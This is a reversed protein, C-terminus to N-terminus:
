LKGKDIFPVNFKKALRNFLPKLKVFGAETYSSTEFQYNNDRFWEFIFTSLKTAYGKNEYYPDICLYSLWFTNEIHPSKRIHAIGVDLDNEKITFFYVPENKFEKFDHDLQMYRFRKKGMDNRYKFRGSMEGNKHTYVYNYFEDRNYIDLKINSVSENIFFIRNSQEDKQYKWGLENLIRLYLRERQKGKKNSFTSFIYGNPKYTNQDHILIKKITNIISYLNDNTIIDMDYYFDVQEKEKARFGFYYVNQKYEIISVKYSYKDSDFYYNRENRNQVFEFDYEVTELFIKFRNLNTIMIKYIKIKNNNFNKRIYIMHQM